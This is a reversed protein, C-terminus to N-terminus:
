SARCAILGSGELDTLLAIFEADPAVGLRTAIDADELPGGELCQLIGATLASVLHTDGSERHYVVAEDEWVQLILPARQWAPM